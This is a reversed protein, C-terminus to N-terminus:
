CHHHQSLRNKIRIPVQKETRKNKASKTRHIMGFLGPRGGDIMEQGRAYSENEAKRNKNDQIKQLAAQRDAEIKRYRPDSEHKERNAQIKNLRKKEKQADAIDGRKESGMTVADKIDSFGRKMSRGASKIATKHDRMVDDVIAGTQKGENEMAHNGTAKGLKEVGKSAAKYAGGSVAMSVATSLIRLFKTVYSVFKTVATLLNNTAFLNEEPINTYSEECEKIFAVIATKTSGNLRRHIDYMYDFVELVSFSIETSAPVWRGLPTGFAIAAGAGLAAKGFLTKEAEKLRKELSTAGSIIRNYEAKFGDEPAGNLTITVDGKPLKDKSPLKSMITNIKAINDDITIKAKQIAPKIKADYHDKATNM